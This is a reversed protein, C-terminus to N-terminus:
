LGRHARGRLGGLPASLPTSQVRGGYLQTSLSPPTMRQTATMEIAITITRAPHWARGVAAGSKTDAGVTPGISMLTRALSESALLRGRITVSAPRGTCPVVDM